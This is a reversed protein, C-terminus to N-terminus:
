KKLRNEIIKALLTRGKGDKISYPVFPAAGTKADPKVDIQELLLAFNRDSHIKAKAPALKDGKTFVIVLEHGYHSAWKAFAIDEESPPHRIDLLLLTLKLNKRTELYRQILDGWAAQKKKGVKAFGYGPLDVLCLEEEISFFNIL